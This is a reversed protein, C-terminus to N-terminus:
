NRTTATSLETHDSHGIAYGKDPYNDAPDEFEMKWLGVIPELGYEDQAGTERRERLSGWRRWSCDTAPWPGTCATRSTNGVGGCQAFLPSLTVPGDGPLKM